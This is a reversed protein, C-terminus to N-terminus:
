FDFGCSRSFQAAPRQFSSLDFERVQTGTQELTYELRLQRTRKLRKLLPAADHLWLSERDQHVQWFTREAAANDFRLRVGGTAFKQDNSPSFALVAKGEECRFAFLAVGKDFDEQNSVVSGATLLYKTPDGMPSLQEEYKWQSVSNHLSDLKSRLDGTMKEIEAVESRCGAIVAIMALLLTNCLTARM